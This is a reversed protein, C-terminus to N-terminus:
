APLLAARRVTRPTPAAVQAAAGSAIWVSRARGPRALWCVNRWPAGDHLACVTPGCGTRLGAGRRAGAACARCSRSFRCLPGAPPHVPPLWLLWHMRPRLPAWAGPRGGTPPQPWSLLRPRSPGRGRGRGWGRQRRQRRQRRQLWHTQPRLPACAVPRDGTPPQPWSLLWPRSRGRGWSRQRRQRWQRWQCLSQWRRRLPPHVFTPGPCPVPRPTQSRRLLCSPRAQV